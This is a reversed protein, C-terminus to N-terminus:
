FTRRFGFEFFMSTQDSDPGNVFSERINAYISTQRRNWGIGLSLDVAETRGNLTSDENRYEVSANWNLSSSVYSRWRLSARDFTVDDDDREFNILERSAEISLNSSTDFRWLYGARFRTLTYPSFDSRHDNYEIRGDFGGIRYEAGILWDKVNDLAFNASDPADVSHDTTRYTTYVGLGRLMGTTISYRVSITSTYTTINNAPEPGADYSIRVVQGDAIGGGVIGRIETFDPFSEVTYDVGELFIPFGSLPTVVISSAVINRRPLVIPFGDRYVYTEDTIAFTEGRESNQQFNIGGGLAADLRGFPVKKTYDAQAAFFVDDTSFNESSELHGGGARAATTLSEFFEKRVSADGRIQSQEQGRVTITSVNLNYRSELTDDHHLTLLEDWRLDSRDQRGTQDYFRLSSRLEHPRLEDGFAMEHVINADHRDFADTYAGGSQSDDVHDFTYTTYLRQRPSLLLSNQLQVTDQLVSTDIDGFDGQLSEDRHRYELFTPAVPSDYRFNIGEEQIIQDITGAFPRDLLSQQRRAFATTPLVSSGFALASVDYLNVFDSEDGSLDDLSSETDVTELGLQASGVIDLLNKHGVTIEGALDLLERLRLERTTEDPQGVRSIRDDRYQTRFELGASANVLQVGSWKERPTGVIVPGGDAAPDPAADPPTEQGLARVNLALVGLLLTSARASTM